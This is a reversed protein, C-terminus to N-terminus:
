ILLTKNVNVVLHHVRVVQDQQLVLVKFTTVDVVVLMMDMTTAVDMMTM